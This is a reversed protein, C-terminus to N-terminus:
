PPDARPRSAGAKPPQSGEVFRVVDGSAQVYACTPMFPIFFLVAAVQNITCPFSKIRLNIIGDGGRAAIERELPESFDVDGLQVTTYFMAFSRTGWQFRGVRETKADPALVPSLSVPHRLGDFVLKPRAGACGLSTALALASVLARSDM